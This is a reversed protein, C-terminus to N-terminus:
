LVKKKNETDMKECAYRIVLRSTKDKWPQLFTIVENKDYKSLEKLTWGVGKQVMVDQDLMLRNCLALTHNVYKGKRAHPILSVVSARRKWRNNSKYWAYMNIIIMPIKDIYKAMVHNSFDDCHAWNTIYNELWYEFLHVTEESFNKKLKPVIELIFQGEEFTGRRWLKDFLELWDQYKLTKKNKQYFEKGLQRVDPVRAGLFIVEEKFWDEAGSKKEPTSVNLISKRIEDLTKNIDM